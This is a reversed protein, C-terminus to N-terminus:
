KEIRRSNFAGQKKKDEYCEECIEMFNWRRYKEDKKVWKGCIQCYHTTRATIAKSIM